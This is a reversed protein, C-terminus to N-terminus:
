VSFVQESRKKRRWTFDGQQQVTGPSGSYHGTTRELAHLQVPGAKLTHQPGAWLDELPVDLSVVAEDRERHSLNAGRPGVLLPPCCWWWLKPRHTPFPSSAPSLVHTKCRCHCPAWKRGRKWKARKKRKIKHVKVQGTSDRLKIDFVVHLLTFILVLVSIMLSMRDRLHTLYVTHWSYIICAERSVFSPVQVKTLKHLTLIWEPFLSSAFDHKRVAHPLSYVNRQESGTTQRKKWKQTHTTGNRPWILGASCLGTKGWVYTYLYLFLNNATTNRKM